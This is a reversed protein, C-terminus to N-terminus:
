FPPADEAALTAPVDARGRPRSSDAAGTQTKAGPSQPGRPPRLGAHSSGNSTPPLDPARSRYRRGNPDTWTVIGTRHDREVTWTGDHKFRHHRRCLSMLNAQTTTDGPKFAEIHDLDNHRAKKRCGPFMCRGDRAIVTRTMHAPPRYTTTGAHLVLGDDDTLLRRWTATPDTAIHRAMTATITGYGDLEAPQDDLGMLTTAAVTVQVAPRQGHATSLHPDGLPATCLDILADVRRQDGTRPDGGNGHITTYAIADLTATIAAAQDAPLYAWLETMVHEVPTIVVRREAVADTHAQDEEAPTAVRLVARKV